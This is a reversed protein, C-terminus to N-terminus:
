NSDHQLRQQRSWATMILDSHTNRETTMKQQTYDQQPWDDRKHGLDIVTFQNARIVRLSEEIAPAIQELLRISNTPVLLVTIPLTRRNQQYSMNHDATIMANFDNSAAEALLKGNTTGLWNM